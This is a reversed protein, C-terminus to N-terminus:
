WSNPTNYRKSVKFNRFGAHGSKRGKKSNPRIDVRGLKLLIYGLEADNIAQKIDNMIILKSGHCCFRHLVGM